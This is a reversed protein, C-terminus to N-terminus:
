QDKGKNKLIIKSTEDSCSDGEDEDVTIGSLIQDDEEEDNIGKANAPTSNSAKKDSDLIVGVGSEDEVDEDADQDGAERKKYFM